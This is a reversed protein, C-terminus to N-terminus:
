FEKIAKKLFAAVENQGDREARRRMVSIAWGKTNRTLSSDNKLRDIWARANKMSKRANADITYTM